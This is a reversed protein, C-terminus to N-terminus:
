DQRSIRMLLGLVAAIAILVAGTYGVAAAGLESEAQGGLYAGAGIGLNCISLNLSLAFARFQKGANMVRVQTVVFATMHAAGWLGVILVLLFPAVRGLPVFVAMSILLATAVALTSTLRGPGAMRGAFWNGVIGAVGFLLLAWGTATGGLDAATTLLTAIYTYGAFMGTFLLGSLMLHALFWPNGLLSVEAWPSPKREMAVPPFWLGLATISLCGLISLALFSMAWGAKAALMTALPIGVATAMVVGLNVQAIAWGARGPEVQKVAAVSLISIVAPLISGQLIRAGAIATYHPVVAAVLNGAVFILMAAVLFTRANFRGAMLTLLPGFLAAALAFWTVLRGAQALTIDLDAALDPLFGIVAFETTVVVFSTCALAWIVLVPARATEIRAADKQM